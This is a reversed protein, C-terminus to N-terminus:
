KSPIFSFTMNNEYSIFLGCPGGYAISENKKKIKSSRIKNRYVIISYYWSVFM